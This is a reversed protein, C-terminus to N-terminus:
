KDADCKDGTPLYLPRVLHYVQLFWVWGPRGKKEKGSINGSDGGAFFIIDYGIGEILEEEAPLRRLVYPLLTDYDIEKSDPFAAANLIYIPLGKESRLPSCYLIRAALRALEPSYQPSNEPPPVATLSARRLRRALMAKTV